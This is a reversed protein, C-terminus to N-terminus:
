RSWAEYEAGCLDEDLWASGDDRSAERLAAMSSSDFGKFLAEYTVGRAPSVRRHAAAEPVLEINGRENVAVVVRDGRRLGADRLVGQPIRVADSNGWSSIATSM